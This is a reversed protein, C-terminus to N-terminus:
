VANTLSMYGLCIDGSPIAASDKKGNDYLGLM